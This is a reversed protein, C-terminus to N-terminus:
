ASSSRAALLSCTSLLWSDTFAPTTDPAPLCIEYPSSTCPWCNLNVMGTLPSRVFMNPRVTVPLGGSFGTLWYVTMPFDKLFVTVGELTVALSCHTVSTRSGFMSWPRITWGFVSPEVSTVTPSSFLVLYGFACTTTLPLRTPTTAGVSDLTIAGGFTDLNRADGNLTLRVVPAQTFRIQDLAVVNAPDSVAILLVKKEADYSVPLVHFRRAMDKPVLAIAAPDVITNELDISVQGLTESLIDRITAETVFGLTVLVKGLPSKFKKQETLAINLQDQSIIGKGLLTQGLPVQALPAPSVSGM